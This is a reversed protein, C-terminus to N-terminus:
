KLASNWVMTFNFGNDSRKNITAKLQKSLLQLLLMGIGSGSDSAQVPLGAGNDQYELTIRHKILGAKEDLYEEQGYNLVLAPAEVVPYVYKYFNIILENLILGITIAHDIDIHIQADTITFAVPRVENGYIASIERFLKKSYAVIDLESFISTQYLNEHVMAMSRVRSQSSAFIQKFGENDSNMSAMELLSYIVSLNNKVRHHVEKLLMEKEALSRKISQEQERKLTVDRFFAQGGSSGDANKSPSISGELVLIHGDCHIFELVVDRVYEGLLVKSFVMNFHAISEETLFEALPANILLSNQYGLVSTFSFSHFAVNLESNITIIIDLSSEFISRYRAESSELELRTHVQETVDIVTGLIYRGDHPPDVVVMNLLITKFEGSETIIDCECNTVRSYIKLTNSIYDKDSQKLFLSINYNEELLTSDFIRELEKNFSMLKGSIRSTFVGVTNNYFLERYKRESHKVETEMIKRDTIDIGFGLVFLLDGNKDRIPSFRRLTTKRNNGVGITEDETEVTKDNTVCKDFYVRRREAIEVSMNRAKVYEFDDKGIIWKRVKDDKIAFRNVFVYKHHENFIVLDVPVNNLVQEYFFIRNDRKEIERRHATVDNLIVIFHGADNLSVSCSFIQQIFRFTFHNNLHGSPTFLKSISPQTCHKSFKAAYSDAATNNYLLKVEASLVFVPQVISDFFSYKAYENKIAEGDINNSGAVIEM